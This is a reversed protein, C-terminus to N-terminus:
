VLARGRWVTDYAKKVDLFFALTPKGRRMCGRVLENLSFINDVCSRGWRFGGKGEHLKNEPESYKFLRINVIRSYLKGVVNLLTVGRHNSPDERM